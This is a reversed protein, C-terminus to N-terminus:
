NLREVLGNGQPYYPSNQIYLAGGGVIYSRFEALFERGEDKRVVLPMGHKYVVHDRFAETVTIARKDRLSILEVGKSFADVVSLM